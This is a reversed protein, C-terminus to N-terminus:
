RAEIKKEECIKDQFKLFLNSMKKAISQGEESETSYEQPKVM